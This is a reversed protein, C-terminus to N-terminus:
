CILKRPEVFVVVSQHGTPPSTESTEIWAGQWIYLYGSESHLYYGQMAFFSQMPDSVPLSSNVSCLVKAIVLQYFHIRGIMTGDMKTINLNM